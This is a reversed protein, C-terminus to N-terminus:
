SYSAVNWLKVVDEYNLAKPAYQRVLRNISTTYFYNNSFMQQPTGEAVINGAFLLSCYDTYRSTFEIDHTVMLITLGNKQLKKLLEGIERKFTPDLGKTPEDILLISPEKLLICALALKQKEGGSLDYPHHQLAKELGFFHISDELSQQTSKNQMQEVVLKLEEAVTDQTFLALPNQSLYGIKKYRDEARIKMIPKGNLLVKGRKPATLGALLKLLTSKGAGNGGIIAAFQGKKISYNVGELILKEGSNYQFFVDKCELINESNIDIEEQIQMNKLIPEDQSSISNLWQKGEKVTIPVSDFASVNMSLYLKTVEPLYHFYEQNETIKAIVSQPADDLIIEGRELLIVRDAIPFVDELRHEIIVMTTSFEQNVRQIMQLFERTAIPDLQATPEDLLLLRPQLLLISALNVLQKQGGSLEHVSRNLWDELGFFTAMEAVKKRMEHSSYGYNELSFALEHWVTSTVIQNEPDQFVIGIEKATTWSSLGDLEIGNYLITGNTTGIPSIEKKMHKLLTTKGSGTPGCLVIIEGERIDLSVNTLTKQNDGAYTFSLNKVELLAM